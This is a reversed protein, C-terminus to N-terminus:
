SWCWTSCAVASSTASRSTPCTRCDHRFQLRHCARAALHGFGAPDARDLQPGPRDERRHRRRLALPPLRRRRDARRVPAFQLWM